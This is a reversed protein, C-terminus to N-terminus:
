KRFVYDRHLPFNWTLFVAGRVLLWALRYESSPILLLVMVGGSNLLASTFSVFSYRLMQKVLAADRTKFVWSRNITFNIIAGVICGAGTALGPYVSMVSVMLDFVAFDCGTAVASSAINRLLSGQSVSAIGSFTDAGLKKLGYVLRRVATVQTMISLLVLTGIALRHSPHPDQPAIIAEAVPSLALGLGLIVVREPRQMLGIRIDIGLSEGKARIYSILQSSVMSVMVVLLVWSERYFWALGIYVAADSYRDLVSDLFNGGVSVESRMRAVRGDFFDCIGAFIFLWGGLAFRGAALSVGSAFALLLALTTIAMAPIQIFELMKWVPKMSWVFYKRLWLCTLVTRERKEMEEDAFEGKILVRIIYMLLAVLFYGALLLGPGLATWIREDASLNGSSMRVINDLWDSSFLTEEFGSVSKFIVFHNM